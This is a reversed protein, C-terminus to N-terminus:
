NLIKSYISKLEEKVQEDSVIAPNDGKQEGYDGAQAHNMGAITFNTATSPLLGANATFKEMNLIGDESGHITSVTLSTDSIDSSCYAGILVLTSIRDTHNKAYECAMAGGLSHGGIVWRKIDPNNAIIETAQNIGFIALYLPPKTIFVNSKRLEDNALFDQKYFYAQSEVLAGPYYIIGTERSRVCSEQACDIHKPSIQWYNSYETVILRDANQQYFQALQDSEARYIQQLFVLIVILAVALFASSTILIKKKLPTM